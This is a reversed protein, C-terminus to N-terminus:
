KAILLSKRNYGELIARSIDEREELSKFRGQILEEDIVDGDIFSNMLSKKVLNSHFTAYDLTDRAIMLHFHAEHPEFEESFRAWNRGAAQMTAVPGYLLEVMLTDYAATLTHGAVAGSNCIILRTNPDTQFKEKAKQIGKMSTNSDTINVVGYKRLAPSNVMRAQSEKHHVFVILKNRRPDGGTIEGTDFFKQIWEIALTTKMYGLTKRLESVRMVAESSDLKSELVKLSYNVDVGDAKSEEITKGVMYARFEDEKERYAVNDEPKLDVFVEHQHLEPLPHLVDSKLRRILFDESMLQYLEATNSAGRNDWHGWDDSKGGCWRAEFAMKGSLYVSRKKSGGRRRYANGQSISAYMEEGDEILLEEALEGYEQDKGLIKMLGWLEFAGNEFPTATALIVIPDNSYKRVAKAIKLAAQSRKAAPNNVSQAEDVVLGQPRADIISDQWYTLIDSNVVIFETDERIPAASRGSLIEVKADNNWRRIEEAIEAKMSSTVVIVFPYCEEPYAGSRVGLEVKALLTSIFEGGKGLGVQDANLIASSVSGITVAKVQHEKLTRKTPFMTPVIGGRKVADEYWSDLIKEKAGGARIQFSRPSMVYDHKRLHQALMDCVDAESNHCTVLTTDDNCVSAGDVMWDCFDDCFRRFKRTAPSVVVVSDRCPEFAYRKMGDAVAQVVWDFEGRFLLGSEFLHSFEDGGVEVSEIIDELAYSSGDRDVVYAEGDVIELSDGIMM